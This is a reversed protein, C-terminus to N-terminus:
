DSYGKLDKVLIEIKKIAIDHLLVRPDEIEAPLNDSLFNVGLYSYLPSVSIAAGLLMSWIIGTTIFANEQSSIEDAVQAKQVINLMLSFSKPELTKEFPGRDRKTLPLPGPPESLFIIKFLDFNDRSFRLFFRCMELLIEKYSVLM